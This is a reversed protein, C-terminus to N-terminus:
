DVSLILKTRWDSKVGEWAWRWWLVEKQFVPVV